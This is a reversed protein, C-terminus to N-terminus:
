CRVMQLKDFDCAMGPHRMPQSTPGFGNTTCASLKTIHMSNPIGPNMWSAATVASDMDSCASRFM